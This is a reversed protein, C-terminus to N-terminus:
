FLQGGHPEPGHASQVPPRPAPAPDNERLGPGGPAGSREGIGGGAGGGPGGGAGGDTSTDGGDPGPGSGGAAAVTRWGVKWPLPPVRKPMWTTLKRSAITVKPIEYKQAFVRM